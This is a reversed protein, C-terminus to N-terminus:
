FGVSHLINLDLGENVDDRSLRQSESPLTEISVRGENQLKLVTSLVLTVDRFLSDHFVHGCEM